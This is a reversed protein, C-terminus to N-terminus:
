EFVAIAARETAPRGAVVLSRGDFEIEIPGEPLAVDLGSLFPFAAFLGVVTLESELNENEDFLFLAITTDEAAATEPTLVEHGDVMMSNADAIMGASASFVVLVPAEHEFPIVSLLAGAMTGPAPLTRLYVLPDSAEFGRRYYSVPIDDDDQGIVEFEYPIGPEADFPGWRGDDGLTFETAPEEETREGTAPDVQWVRVIAGTAVINEGLSLVRGGLIVTDSPVVETTAPEEGDTIFRYIADFSAASTAVAYHDAGVIEVNQAGPIEGADEIAFDAASWLNLTPVDADPGAPADEIFSAVHVYHAVKDARSSDSLYEYSLGGGASHGVLDISDAGTAALVEDVFADLLAAHDMTRNLSNWDFAFILHACWGNAAFRRAHQSWTDGAALFGHALVIPRRADDCIVADVDGAVDAVADSALEDGHATVDVPDDVAPQETCGVLLLLVVRVSRFPRM